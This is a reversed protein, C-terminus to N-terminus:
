LALTKSQGRVSQTHSTVDQRPIWSFDYYWLCKPWMSKKGMVLKWLKRSIRIIMNKTKCRFRHGLLPVAGFPQGARDTQSKLQLNDGPKQATEATAMPSSSVNPTIVSNKM